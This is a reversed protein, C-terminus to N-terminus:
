GLISSPLDDVRHRGFRETDEYTGVRAANVAESTKRWGPGNVHDSVPDLCQDASLPPEFPRHRARLFPRGRGCGSWMSSQISVAAVVPKFRTAFDGDNRTRRQPLKPYANASGGRAHHRPPPCLHNDRDEFFISRLRQCLFDTGCSDSGDCLRQVKTIRVSSLSQKLARNRGVTGDIDQM